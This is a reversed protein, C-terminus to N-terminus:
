NSNSVQLCIRFSLCLFHTVFKHGVEINVIQIAKWNFSNTKIIEM